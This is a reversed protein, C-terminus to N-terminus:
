SGCKCRLTGWGVVHTYFLRQVLVVFQRRCRQREQENSVGFRQDMQQLPRKSRADQGHRLREVLGSVSRSDDVREEDSDNASPPEM